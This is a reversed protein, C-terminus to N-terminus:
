GVSTRVPDTTAVAVVPIAPAGKQRNAISRSSLRLQGRASRHQGPPFNGFCISLQDNGNRFCGRGPPGLPDPYPSTCLSSKHLRTVKAACPTALRRPDPLETPLATSQFDAHRRNLDAGQYWRRVQMTALRAPKNKDSFRRPRSGHGALSPRLDGHAEM